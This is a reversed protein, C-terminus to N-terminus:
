LCWLTFPKNKKDVVAKHQLHVAFCMKSHLFTLVWSLVLPQTIIIYGCFRLSIAHKLPHDLDGIHFFSKLM